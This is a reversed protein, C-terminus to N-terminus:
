PRPVRGRPRGPPDQDRQLHLGLARLEPGRQPRAARLPNRGDRLRGAPDRDPGHGPHHRAPHRAAGPRHPVGREVVQGRPLDRAQAPLVLAGLRPRDALYFWPGSGRAILAKANHFFYLGFDVLSASLSKGDLQLGHEELHLGRPRVLLTAVEDKLEYHKGSVPHTYTIERRVADRLNVQGDMCNSWTPANSDEFDAMFCSSGSNLANIVMKRDVPGTIEVRRDQLDDPIPACKWSAERIGATETPFGLPQGADWAAQREKRRELLALRKGDHVRSLSSLFALAAPTLIRDYGPRIEGAIAIEPLRIEPSASMRQIGM